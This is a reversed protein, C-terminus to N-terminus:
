QKIIEKRMEIIDFVDIISDNCLDEAQWDTLTGAGLLFKELMVLDAITFQSDANVDGKIFNSKLRINNEKA